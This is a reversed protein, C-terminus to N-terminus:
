SSEEKKKFKGVFFGKTKHIAPFLRGTGAIEKDDIKYSKGFWEPLQLPELYDLFKLIQMEGEEAYLSCTSYV